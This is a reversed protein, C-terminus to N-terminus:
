ATWICTTASRPEAARPLGGAYYFDEMLFKATPRLNAICRRASPFRTSVTWRCNIGARGAMAILHIIANTSGGIAMDVTIANDFAGAPSSTARSAPRGLGDRRHAPRQSGGHAFTASHAAPISSAGPLTMGLTEAISLMTSATGMTM